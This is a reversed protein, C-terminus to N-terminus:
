PQRNGRGYNCHKCAPVLDDLTGGRSWPVLYDATDAPRGCWHCPQGLLERRRRQFEAGHGRQARPVGRHNRTSSPARSPDCGRCRSDTTPVGCSLCPRLLRM